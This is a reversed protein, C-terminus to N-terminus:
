DRHHERQRFHGLHLLLLPFSNGVETIPSTVGLINVPVLVLTSLVCLVVAMLLLYWKFLLYLATERGYQRSVTLFRDLSFTWNWLASCSRIVDKLRYRPSEEAHKVNYLDFHRFIFEYWIGAAVCAILGNTLLVVVVSMGSIGVEVVRSSQEDDMM